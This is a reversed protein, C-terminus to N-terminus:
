QLTQRYIAGVVDCINVFHLDEQKRESGGEKKSASPQSMFGDTSHGRSRVLFCEKVFFQFAVFEVVLNLIKQRGDIRATFRQETAPMHGILVLDEM